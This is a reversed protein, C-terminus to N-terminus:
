RSRYVRRRHQARHVLVVHSPCPMSGKVKEDNELRGQPVREFSSRWPLTRIPGPNNKFATM